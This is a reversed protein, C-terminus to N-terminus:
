FNGEGSLCGWSELRHTAAGPGTGQSYWGLESHKREIEALPGWDGPRRCEKATGTFPVPKDSRDRNRQGGQNVYKGM